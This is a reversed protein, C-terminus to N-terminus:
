DTCNWIINSDSYGPAWGFTSMAEENYVTFDSSSSKGVICVSTLPNSEFCWSGLHNVTSPIRVYTLLDSEFVYKLISTLGENLIVSEIGSDYFARDGLTLVGTPIVINEKKLGGYSNVYTTDVEAIGDLNSDTRKYIFAKADPLANYAFAGAGIDIVSAPINIDSMKNDYFALESIYKLSSPFNVSVIESHSFALEDITEVGNPINVGNKLAGGYSVIRTTDVEAIGDSNSDARGYIFASESPLANNNFVAWGINTVSLPITLQAIKNNEFSYDDMRTLTNPLTVSELDNDSFAWGGITTVGNPISISTLNNYRFTNMDIITVGSPLNVSTLENNYLAGYGLYTLGQPLEISKLFNGALAYGKISTVTNPIIIKTMNKNYFAVNDITTITSGGIVSPIELSRPCAPNSSNNEENNYYAKIANGVVSFCAANAVVPAEVSGCLDGNEISSVKIDKLSLDGSINISYEGNTVCISSIKNNYIDVQYKLKSKVELKSNVSNFGSPLEKGIYNMLIETESEKFITKAETIFTEKKNENFIKIVKPVAFIMIIAIVAIVALLEILTFGSKKKM